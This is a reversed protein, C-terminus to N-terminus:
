GTPILESGFLKIEGSQDVIYPKNEHTPEQEDGLVVAICPWPELDVAHESTVFSMLLQVAHSTKDM